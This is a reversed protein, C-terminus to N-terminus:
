SVIQGFLLGDLGPLKKLSGSKAIKGMRDPNDSTNGSLPPPTGLQRAPELCASILNPDEEQAILNTTSRRRGLYPTM